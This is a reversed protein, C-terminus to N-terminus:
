QLNTKSVQPFTKVIQFEEKERQRTFGLSPSQMKDQAILKFFKAKFRETKTELCLFRKTYCILVKTPGKSMRSKKESIIQRTTFHEM